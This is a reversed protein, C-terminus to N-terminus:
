FLLNFVLGTLIGGLWLTGIVLAVVRWRAITLLGTIAGISTGSGTILFALAAGQSMGGEILGRVLPLSAESNIYFPLGLTAALLVSYHNGKGFLSAIWENPILNNLFYGVFAFIFFMRLLNLAGKWLERLFGKLGSPKVAPASSCGCAPPTPEPQSGCGCSPAPAAAPSTQGGCGCSSAPVTELVPQGGCGCGSGAAALTPQAFPNVVATSSPTPSAMRAQGKLWGRRDLIGAVGGGLLGLVISAVYYTAAFKWGFLGASYILGEPSSLPSAVMFAVVPAWPILSAMMGLIVATTGCSCLPTAVAVAVAGLVGGTQNSKFFATTKQPDLWRNLGVSVIVGALLFPWNHTFTVWTQGLSRAILDIIAEM